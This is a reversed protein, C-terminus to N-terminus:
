VKRHFPVIERCVLEVSVSMHRCICLKGYEFIVAGTTVHRNRSM